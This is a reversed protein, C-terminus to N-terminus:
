QKFQHGVSGNRKFPSPVPALALNPLPRAAWSGMASGSLKFFSMLQLLGEAQASM